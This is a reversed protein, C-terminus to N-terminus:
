DQHQDPDHNAVEDHGKPGFSDKSVIHMLKNGLIDAAKEISDALVLIAASKSDCNVQKRFAIFRENVNPHDM